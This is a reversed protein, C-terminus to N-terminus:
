GIFISPMISSCATKYQLGLNGGAHGVTAARGGSQRSYNKSIDSVSTSAAMEVWTQGTRMKVAEVKCQGAWPPAGSVNAWARLTTAV